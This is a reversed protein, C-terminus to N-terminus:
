ITHVGRRDGPPYPSDWPDTPHAANWLRIMEDAGLARLSCPACRGTGAWLCVKYQCDPTECNPWADLKM